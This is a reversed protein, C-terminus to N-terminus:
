RKLKILTIESSHGFRFPFGSWIGTGNSVYLQLKSNDLKYLGSCFGGNFAAVIQDFLIISGGHTHGSIQLDINYRKADNAVEPRHALLVKVPFTESGKTAKVLSPPPIKAPQNKTSAVKDTIGILALEGINTFQNNLMKINYNRFLKQYEHYGSYYEHNGVIGYVGNQAQCKALPALKEALETTTGDAVDGLIVIINANLQNTKEVIKEIDNKNTMSNIHLDSLVAISFNNLNKPLKNIKITQQKVSPSSLGSLLGFASVLLALATAGMTFYNFFTKIQIPSYKKTILNVLYTILFCLDKIIVLFFLIFVVGFAWTISWIIFNPLAPEQFMKGTIIYAILFKSSVIATVISLAIKSKQPMPSPLIGRTIVVAAFIINFVFM